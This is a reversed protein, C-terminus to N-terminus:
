QQAQLLAISAARWEAAARRPPARREQEAAERAEADTKPRRMMSKMSRWHAQPPSILSWSACSM